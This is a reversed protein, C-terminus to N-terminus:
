KFVVGSIIHKFLFGRSGGPFIHLFSEPFWKVVFAREPVAVWQIRFYMSNETAM